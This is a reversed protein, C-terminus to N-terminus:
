AEFLFTLHTIDSITFPSLGHSPANEAKCISPFTPADGALSANIIRSRDTVYHTSSIPALVDALIIHIPMIKKAHAGSCDLGAYNKTM